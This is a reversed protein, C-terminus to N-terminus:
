YTKEEKWNEVFGCSPSCTVENYISIGENTSAVADIMYFLSPLTGAISVASGFHMRHVILNDYYM